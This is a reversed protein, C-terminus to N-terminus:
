YVHADDENEYSPYGSASSASFNVIEMMNGVFSVADVCFAGGDEGIRTIQMSCCFGGTEFAIIGCKADYIEQWTKDLTAVGANEDVTMGVVPVGGGNGAVGGDPTVVNKINKLLRTLLNYKTEM